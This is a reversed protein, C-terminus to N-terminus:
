VAGRKEIAAGHHELYQADQMQRLTSDIVELITRAEAFVVCSGDRRLPCHGSSQQQPCTSCIDEIIRALYPEIRDATMERALQVLADLHADVSALGGPVSLKSRDFLQPHRVRLASWVAALVAQRQEGELLESVM